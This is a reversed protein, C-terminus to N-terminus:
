CRPRCSGTCRTSDDYTRRSCTTSSSGATSPATNPWSASTRTTSYNAAHHPNGADPTAPADVHQTRIDYGLFRAAQSTAHTILTKAESLELKLEERLFRRV